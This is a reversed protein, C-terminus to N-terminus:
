RAVIGVRQRWWAISRELGAAHDFRPQWDLEQALRSVDASVEPAEDARAEIAGLEVLERRDLQRAIEEVLEKLRVSRGAAVNIPGRVDSDVLRALADALDEVYLYDRLQEGHTSRAPEGALLSRTVSAVLRNEAEGPGYLFFIRAWAASLGVETRYSEVLEGLANKCVGYPTAPRRPSDEGLPQEAGWDYEACSGAMVARRGSQQAFEMLLQLSARAWHFNDVSGATLQWALHLLGEPRTERILEAPVAPDLLDARHWSVGDTEPPEAADSTVGIVEWGRRNLPEICHRGIFGTAGTLL